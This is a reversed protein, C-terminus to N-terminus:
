PLGSAEPVTGGKKVSLVAEYYTQTYIFIGELFFM